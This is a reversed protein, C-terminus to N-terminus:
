SMFGICDIHLSNYVTNSRKTTQAQIFLLVLETDYAGIRDTKLLVNATKLQRLESLSLYGKASREVSVVNIENVEISIDAMNEVSVVNIENVEISIDAMNEVSVVNIENVEISIDAMNEVSVVNIENVEISIDAM